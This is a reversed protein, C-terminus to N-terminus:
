SNLVRVPDLSLVRRAPVYSAAAAATAVIVVVAGYTLPDVPTVGFLLSRMLGNLAAAAALGFPIAIVCLLLGWRVFSLILTGPQGGLAVRIGLERTRRTVSYAVVGYVGVIALVLAMGSSLLLTTMTFSTQAMSRQYITQMTQVGAIAVDPRISWIAKQADTLLSAAGARPTRIVFTITRAVYSRDARYPNEEYAPWYITAPAAKGAGNERVDQVVGVVEHWPTGPLTQVRRGIAGSASGWLERALNESVLIVRSSANLDAWGLDRGAVIVTGMSKLYGPSILKFLRLPPVQAASLRTGEPIVVDWDPPTGEMPITTAFGASTVGPIAALRDVLQHEVLAARDDQPILMDPIAVRLTLQRAPDTFGPEVAHLARFSRLLLGSSALLVIAMALQAVILGNRGRRRGRTETTTRSGTGTDALSPMRRFALFASVIIASALASTVAFMVERAGIAIETVRPLSAPAVSALSHVSVESALVAAAAAVIALVLLETALARVIRARAAGLAARIALEHHREDTRVFVLTAVNAAAILLVLAATAMLAWLASRVSGVVDDKLPRIAPTIRWAEYVHPDVGRPAPWSTMWIPLLRALDANAQAITVGPRLRAIGQWGFGPLHASSRDFRAPLVLDPHADALVFTAPMVGVIQRPEADVTLMSGLARADGGLRRQWYGYSLVVTPAARPQQDATNLLRGAAPAVALAQLLGDSVVAAQVEEPDGRETITATQSGWVGIAEFVRNQEAYTFYMSDSLRLDGSVAALGPAGPATNWVAVIRDPEPYPLPALLVGDIVAFVTTTVAIGLALTLITVLSFTPTRRLARIGQRVDRALADFGPVGRQDRLSEMAPALDAAREGCRHAGADEAMALHARLEAELDADSRRPRWGGTVRHVWERLIDLTMTWRGDDMAWRGDGM